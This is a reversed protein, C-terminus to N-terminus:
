ALMLNLNQRISHNRMEMVDAPEESDFDLVWREDL